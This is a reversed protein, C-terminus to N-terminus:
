YKRPYCFLIIHYFRSINRKRVRKFLQIAKLNIKDNSLMDATMGNFILLRKRKKNPNYEDTIWIMRTSLLFWTGIDERKEILFQYKAENPDKTTNIFKILVWNNTNQIFSWFHAALM